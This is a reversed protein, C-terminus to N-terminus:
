GRFTVLLYSWLDPVVVLLMAFSLWYRKFLSVTGLTIVQAVIKTLWLRGSSIFVLACFASFTRNLGVSHSTPLPAFDGLHRLRCKQWHHHTTRKSSAKSGISQGAGPLQSGFGLKGGWSKKM